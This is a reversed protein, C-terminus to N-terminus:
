FNAPTYALAAAIEDIETAYAATMLGDQSPTADRIKAAGGTVLQDEPNSARILDQGKASPSQQGGRQREWKKQTTGVLKAIIYQDQRRLVHTGITSNDFGSVTVALTSSDGKEVYIEDGWQALAPDPLVVTVAQSLASDNFGMVKLARHKDNGLLVAFTGGATWDVDENITRGSGRFLVLERLTKANITIGIRKVGPLFTEKTAVGATSWEVGVDAGPTASRVLMPTPSHDYVYRGTEKQAETQHEIEVDVVAGDLVAAFAQWTSDLAGDLVFDGAGESTSTVQVNSLWDQM